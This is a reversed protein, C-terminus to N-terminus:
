PRSWGSVIVIVVLVLVLFLVVIILLLLLGDPQHNINTAAARVGGQHLLLRGELSSFVCQSTPPCCKAPLEHLVADRLEFPLMARVRAFTGLRDGLQRTRGVSNARGNAGVMVAAAAAGRLCACTHSEAIRASEASWCVSM